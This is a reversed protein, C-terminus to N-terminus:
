NLIQGYIERYVVVVDPRLLLLDVQLVHAGAQVMEERRVLEERIALLGLIELEREVHELKQDEVAVTNLLLGKKEWSNTKNNNRNDNWAQEIRKLSKLHHCESNIM